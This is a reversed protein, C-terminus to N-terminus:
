RKWITELMKLIMDMDGVDRGSDLFFTDTKGYGKRCKLFVYRNEWIGGPINFFLIWKEWMGELM